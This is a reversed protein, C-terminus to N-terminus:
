LLDTREEPGALHIRQQEKNALTVCQYSTTIDQLVELVKYLAM